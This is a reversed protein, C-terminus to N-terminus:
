SLPNRGLVLAGENTEKPATETYPVGLSDMFQIHDIDQDKMGVQVFEELASLDYNMIYTKSSQNLFNALSQVKGKQIQSLEQATMHHFFVAALVLLATISGILPVLIRYKLSLRKFFSM